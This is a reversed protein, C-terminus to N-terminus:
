LDLSELYARFVQIASNHWDPETANTAPIEGTPTMGEDYWFGGDSKLRKLFKESCFIARGHAQGNAKAEAESSFLFAQDVTMQAIADLAADTIENDDHMFLVPGDKWKNKLYWDYCGFELGFNPILDFDLGHLEKGSLARHAVIGATHKSNVMRAIFPEHYYWGAVCINM